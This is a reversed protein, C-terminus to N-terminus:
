KPPIIWQFGDTPTITAIHIHGGVACCKGDLAIAEPDSHAQIFAKSREIADSITMNEAYVLPGRYSALRGDTSPGFLLNGIIPCPAQIMHFGVLLPNERLIESDCLKGRDHFM